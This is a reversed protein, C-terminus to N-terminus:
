LSKAACGARNAGTSRTLTDSELSIPLKNQRRVGILM